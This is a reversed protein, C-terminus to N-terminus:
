PVEAPSRTWGGWWLLIISLTLNHWSQSQRGWKPCRWPVAEAIKKSLKNWQQVAQARPFPRLGTHVEWAAVKSKHETTKQQQSPKPETITKIRLQSTWCRELMAATQDWGTSHHPTERTWTHLKRSRIPVRRSNKILGGRQLTSVTSLNSYICKTEEEPKSSLIESM